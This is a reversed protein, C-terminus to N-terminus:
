PQKKVRRRLGFLGFAGLAVLTLSSPEPVVSISLSSAGWNTVWSWSPNSLGAASWDFNIASTDASLTDWKMIEFTNGPVPSFTLGGTTTDDLEIKITAGDQITLEDIEYVTYRDTRDNNDEAMADMPTTGALDFELVSTPSYTFPTSSFVHGPSFGPSFPGEFQHTGTGTLTGSLNGKVTGFYVVRSGAGARIEPKPTGAVTDHIFVDDFFTLTAGGSVIIDTADGGSHWVDGYIKTTGSFNMKGYNFIGTGSEIPGPALTIQGARLIGDGSITGSASNTFGQPSEVTGGFALTVLGNNTNGTGTLKLEDTFSARLEGGSNNVVTNGIVGRGSVLGTNTLTGGSMQSVPSDMLLTGQNIVGGQASSTGGSHRLISGPTVTITGNNAPGDTISVNQNTSLTVISGLPGGPGVVLDTNTYALTGSTFNLLAPNVITGASFVGGSLTVPSLLTATGEVIVTKGTNVTHSGGLMQALNDGPLVSWSGTSRLTGFAFNVGTAGVVKGPDVIQLEGGFLNIKGGSSM